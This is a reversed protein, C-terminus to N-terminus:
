NLILKFYLNKNSISKLISFNQIVVRIITDVNVMEEKDSIDQCLQVYNYYTVNKKLITM